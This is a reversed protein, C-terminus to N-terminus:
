HYENGYAQNADMEICDVAEDDHKVEQLQTTSAQNADMISENSTNHLMQPQTSMEIPDFTNVSASKRRKIVFTFMVLYVLFIIIMMRPSGESM